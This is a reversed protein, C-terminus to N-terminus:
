EVDDPIIEDIYTESIIYEEVLDVFEGIDMFYNPYAQKVMGYSKARVMVIDLPKKNREQELLDYKGNASRMDSPKYYWRRLAKQFYDM